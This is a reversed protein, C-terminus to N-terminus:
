GYIVSEQIRYMQETQNGKTEAMECRENRWLVALIERGPCQSGKRRGAILAISYKDRNDTSRILRQGMTAFM